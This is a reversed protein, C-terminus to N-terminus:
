EEFLQHVCKDKPYDIATDNFEYHLKQKEDVSLIDLEYLKRADENIAYPISRYADQKKHSYIIEDKVSQYKIKKMQGRM